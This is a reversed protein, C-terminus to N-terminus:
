EIKVDGAISIDKLTHANDICELLIFYILSYIFIDYLIVNNLVPKIM